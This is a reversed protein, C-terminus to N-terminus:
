YSYIWAPHRFLCNLMKHYHFDYMCLKNIELVTFGAYIPKNLTVNENITYSRKMSPKCVREMAIKKDTIVEVNIRNGLHEKIKGFVANNMLKFDALLRHQCHEKKRISISPSRWGFSNDKPSALKLLSNRLSQEM